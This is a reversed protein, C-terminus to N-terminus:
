MAAPQSEKEPSKKITTDFGFGIGFRVFWGQQGKLMGYDEETGPTAAYTEYGAQFNARLYKSYRYDAGLAFSGGIQTQTTQSTPYSDPLLIINSSFSIKGYLRMFNNSDKYFYLLVGNQIKIDRRESEQDFLLSGSLAWGLYEGIRFRLNIGMGALSTDQYRTYDAFPSIALFFPQRTPNEEPTLGTGIPVSKLPVSASGHPASVLVEKTRPSSSESKESAPDTLASLLVYRRTQGDKKQCGPAYSEGFGARASVPIM